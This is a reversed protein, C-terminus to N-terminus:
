DHLSTNVNREFFLEVLSRLAQVLQKFLGLSQRTSSIMRMHQAHKAIAAAFAINQGFVYRIATSLIHQDCLSLKRTTIFQHMHQLYKLIFSLLKFMKITSLISWKITNMWWHRMINCIATSAAAPIKCKCLCPMTWRSIAALFINKSPWYRPLTHEQISNIIMIIQNYHIEQITCVMKNIKNIQVHRMVNQKSSHTISILNSVKSQGFIQWFLVFACPFFINAIFVRNNWELNTRTQSSLRCDHFGSWMQSIYNIKIKNNEQWVTSLALTKWHFSIKLPRLHYALIKKKNKLEIKYRIYFLKTNKYKSSNMWM